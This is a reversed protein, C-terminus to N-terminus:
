PCSDCSRACFSLMYDPNRDCEGLSAWFECSGNNDECSSDPIIVTPGETPDRRRTPARTPSSPGDTACGNCSRTCFSLMYDPNRDCEGLSAWFECSGNNDECSSASTPSETRDRTRTPERTPRDTPSETPDRRRTPARTPSSPGDTACGNCSRTCFSLMYDPNRDCEGLSAWFECSGNNDECSSDSTPSETRDRTRTPERTPRDTPSETPDRRRTPARTPSSPGDTACGNCSRTCFSLMYDPNRDCEGLSAWFECSGNNDECSSDSTPSETRDRTRTPERTPRDTPSETPDRRRTPRQTPRRTPRGTPQRTPSPGGGSGCEDCSRTCFSLMYDPNRDCEGLSAWFECSINSDQCNSDPTISTPSETRDLTRTPERTPRETPPKTTPSPPDGSGCEDCSRTCFSLMYDPNRDCEGLSAWFECSGNSDECSPDTPRAPTPSSTPRATPAQTTESPECPPQLFLPIFPNCPPLVPAIVCYDWGTTGGSGCGLIPEDRDRFSCM